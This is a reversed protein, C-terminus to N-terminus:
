FHGCFHDLLMLGVSQELFHRCAALSSFRFSKFKKPTILCEKSKLSRNQIVEGM